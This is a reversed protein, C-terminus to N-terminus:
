GAAGGGGGGVRNFIPIGTDTNGCPGGGGGGVGFCPVFKFVCEGDIARFDGCGCDKSGGGNPIRGSIFIGGFGIAASLFTGAGFGFSTSQPSSNRLSRDRDFLGMGGLITSDVFM